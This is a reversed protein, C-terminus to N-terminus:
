PPFSDWFSAAVPHVCCLLKTPIAPLSQARPDLDLSEWAQGGATGHGTIRQGLPWVYNSTIIRYNWSSMKSSLYVKFSSKKKKFALLLKVLFFKEWETRVQKWIGRWDQGNGPAM